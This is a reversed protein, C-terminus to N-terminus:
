VGARGHLRSAVLLGLNVAITLVSAAFVAFVAVQGPPDDEGSTEWGAIKGVVIAAVLCALAVVVRLFRSKERDAADTVM